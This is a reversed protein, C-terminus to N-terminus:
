DYAAGDGNVLVSAVSRYGATGNAVLLIWVTRDVVRGVTVGLVTMPIAMAPIPMAVAVAVTASGSVVAVLMATVIRRVAVAFAVAIVRAVLRM